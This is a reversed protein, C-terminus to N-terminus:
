QSMKPINREDNVSKEAGFNFKIIYFNMLFIFRHSVAGLPTVGTLYNEAVSQFNATRRSLTILM